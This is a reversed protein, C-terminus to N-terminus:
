FGLNTPPTRFVTSNLGNMGATPSTNPLPQGGLNSGDPPTPYTQNPNFNSGFTGTQSGTVPAVAGQLKARGNLMYWFQKARTDGAANVPVILILLFALIGVMLGIGGLTPLTGARELLPNVNELARNVGQTVHRVDRVSSAQRKDEEREAEKRQVDLERQKEKAVREDSAADMKKARAHLRQENRAQQKGRQLAENLDKDKKAQDEQKEVVDTLDALDVQEGTTVDEIKARSGQLDVYRKLFADDVTLLDDEKKEAKKVAV